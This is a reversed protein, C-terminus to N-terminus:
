EILELENLGGGAGGGMWAVCGYSCIYVSIFLRTRARAGTDM